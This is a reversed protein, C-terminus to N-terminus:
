LSKRTCAPHAAPPFISHGCGAATAARGNGRAIPRRNSLPRNWGRADFHEGADARALKRAPVISAAQMRRDTMQRDGALHGIAVVRVPEFERVASERRWVGVDREAPPRRPAVVRANGKVHRAGVQLFAIAHERAIIVANPAGVLGIVTPPVASNEPTIVSASLRGRTSPCKTASSMRANSTFQPLPSAPRTM